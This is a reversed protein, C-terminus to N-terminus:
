IPTEITQDFRQHYRRATGAVARSVLKAVGLVVVATLLVAAVEAKLGTLV